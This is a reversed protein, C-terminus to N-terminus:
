KMELFSASWDKQALRNPAIPKVKSGPDLVVLLWRLAFHASEWETLAIWSEDNRPAFRRLLGDRRSPFISQKAESAIVSIYLEPM